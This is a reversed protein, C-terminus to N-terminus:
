CKQYKEVIQESKSTKSVKKRKDYKKAYKTSKVSKQIKLMKPVKKRNEVKNKMKPVKKRKDYKKPHYTSKVSEKSRSM